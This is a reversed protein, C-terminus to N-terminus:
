ILGTEELIKEERAQCSLIIIQRDGTRSGLYDMTARLREDDLHIFSDDFILPFKGGDLIIDCLATRLGLWMLDETGRSLYKMDHSLGDSVYDLSFNEKLYVEPYKMGTLKGMIISMRESVRPLYEEKKEELISSITGSAIKLSEAKRLLRTMEADNEETESIIAPLKETEMSIRETEKRLNEIERECVFLKESLIEIRETNDKLDDMLNKKDEGSLSPPNLVIESLDGDPSKSELSEVIEKLEAELERVYDEKLIFRRIGSIVSKYQEGTLEFDAARVSVRSNGNIGPGERNEESNSKSYNKVESINEGSVVESSGQERSLFSDSEISDNQITDNQITDNQFSNEPHIYGTGETLLLGLSSYQNNENSILSKVTEKMEKEHSLLIKKLEEIESRMRSLSKRMSSTEADIGELRESKDYFEGIDRCGSSSLINRIRAEATKEKEILGELTVSFGGSSLIRLLEMLGETNEQGSTDKLVSLAMSAKKEENGSQRKKWIFIGVSLILLIVPVSFLLDPFTEPNESQVKFFFSVFLFVASIILLILEPTRNKLRRIKDISDLYARGLINVEDQPLEGTNKLFNINKRTEIFDESLRKLEDRKEPTFPSLNGNNVKETGEENGYSYNIAEASSIIEKRQNELSFLIELSSNYERTKLNIVNKLEDAENIKEGATKLEAIEEGTPFAKLKNQTEEKKRLLFLIDEYDELERLKERMNGAAKLIHMDKKLTEREEEKNLLQTKLVNLHSKLERTENEKIKLWSNREKLLDYKGTKRSNQIEKIKEELIKVAKDSSIKEDGTLAFNRLKELIEPAGKSDVSHNMEHVMLLRTFTEEQLGTFFVGPEGPIVIRERTKENLLLMTDERQTLGFYREIRYTKEGKSLIMAGRACSKGFPIIRDRSSYDDKRRDKPVGYLMYTIFLAITSKGAENKGTLVNMGDSFILTEDNFKGFERIELRDITM